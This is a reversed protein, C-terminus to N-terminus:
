NLISILLNIILEGLKDWQGTAVSVILISITSILMILKFKDLNGFMKGKENKQNVFWNKRNGM